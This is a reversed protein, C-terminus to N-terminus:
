PALATIVARLPAPHGETTKSPDAPNLFDSLSEFQMWPTARQEDCTTPSQDICQVQKFGCKKLWSILTSVSPLFWVNPMKAYRGEPVLVEGLAGEIVLTELVLQGGSRLQARLERLHDIPSRRHYLIGMSFVTDFAASAAPLEEIGIPLVDVPLDAPLFHKLAYFQCVFKVAPDIGIVRAAGAGLMRWCHYGSGCGIDLVRRGALPQIAEILRKWKWDSRWETDIHIGFLDFPGKRWPHLAMLTKALTERRAKDLLGPDGIAVREGLEVSIPDITPLARLADLWGPLDGWRASNIRAAILAPLQEAWRVLAPNGSNALAALLTSYDIATDAFECDALNVANTQNV